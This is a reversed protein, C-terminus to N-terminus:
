QPTNGLLDKAKNLTKIRKQASKLNERARQAIGTYDQIALELNEKLMKETNETADLLEPNM